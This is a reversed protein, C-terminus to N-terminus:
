IAYGTLVSNQPHFKNMRNYWGWCLFKLIYANEFSLLFLEYTTRRINSSFVSFFRLEASSQSKAYYKYNVDIDLSIKSIKKMGHCSTTRLWQTAITTFTGDFLHNFIDEDNISLYYVAVYMQIQFIIQTM